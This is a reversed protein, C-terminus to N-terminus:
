PTALQQDRRVCFVLAERMSRFSRLGELDLGMHIITRAINPHIGSLACKSGLLTVARAMRLFYDASQTDMIELGTLDIIAYRAKKRVITSLLTTTIDAARSSDLVGVIPVCLVGGWIEIVPVSLTQIAERQREILDIRRALENLNDASKERAATLAYMLDNVSSALAGAPHTEPFGLDLKNTLDGRAVSGLVELITTISSDLEARLTSEESTPPDPDSM